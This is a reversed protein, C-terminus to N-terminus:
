SKLNSESLSLEVPAFDFPSYVEAMLSSVSGRALEENDFKSAEWADKTLPPYADMKWYQGTKLNKMAIKKEM